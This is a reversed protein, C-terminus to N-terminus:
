KTPFLKQSLLSERHLMLIHMSAFFHFSRCLFGVDSRLDTMALELPCRFILVISIIIEALCVTNDWIHPSDKAIVQEASIGSALATNVSEKTLAAVVLNPLQYELRLCLYDCMLTCVLFVLKRKLYKHFTPLRRCFIEVVDQQSRRALSFHM